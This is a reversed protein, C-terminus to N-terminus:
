LKIAAITKDILEALETVKPYERLMVLQTNTNWEWVLNDGATRYKIKAPEVQNPNAAKWFALAVKVEEKKKEQDLALRSIIIRSTDFVPVFGVRDYVRVLNYNVLDEDQHYTGEPSAPTIAVMPRPLFKGTAAEKGLDRWYQTRETYPASALILSIHTAPKFQNPRPHTGQRPYAREGEPGGSLYNRSMGISWLLLLRGLGSKGKHKQACLALVEICQSRPGHLQVQGVQGIPTVKALKEELIKAESGPASRSMICYGIVQAANDNTVLAWGELWKRGRQYPVTENTVFTKQDAVNNEYSDGVANYFIPLGRKGHKTKDFVIGPGSPSVWNGYNGSDTGGILQDWRKQSILEAEAGNLACAKSLDDFKIGGSLRVIRLQLRDLTNPIVKLVDLYEKPPPALVLKAYPDLIHTKSEPPQELNPLPASDDRWADANINLNPYMDADPGGAGVPASAPAAAPAARPKYKNLLTNLQSVSFVQKVREPPLSKAQGVANQRAWQHAEVAFPLEELLVVLYAFQGAQVDTWKQMAEPRMQDKVRNLVELSNEVRAGSKEDMLNQNDPSLVVTSALERRLGQRLQQYFISSTPMYRDILTNIQAPTYEPIKISDLSSGAALANKVVRHAALARNVEEEKINAPIDRNVSLPKNSIINLFATDQATLVANDVLAQRLDRRIADTNTNPPPPRQPQGAAGAPAGAAPPQRAAPMMAYKLALIDIGAGYARAVDPIEQEVAATVEQPLMSQGSHGRTRAWKHMKVALDFEQQRLTRFAEYVQPNTERKSLLDAVSPMDSLLWDSVNKITLRQQTKSVVFQDDANIIVSDYMFKRLSKRIREEDPVTVRKGERAAPAAPAPARQEKYFGLRAVAVPVGYVAAVQPLEEEYARGFIKVDDTPKGDQLWKVAFDNLEQMYLLEQAEIRKYAAWLHDDEEGRSAKIAAFAPYKRALRKRFLSKTFETGTKRDLLRDRKDYVNNLAFDERLATRIQEEGALTTPSFDGRPPRPEPPADEDPDYDEDDDPGEWDVGMNGYLFEQPDLAVATNRRYKPKVRDRSYDGTQWEERTIRGTIFLGLKIDRIDVMKKNARRALQLAVTLVQMLEAEHCAQVFRLLGIQKRPMGFARLSPDLKAEEIVHRQFMREFYQAPLLLRFNKNEYFETNSVLGAKKDAALKAKAAARRRARDQEVAVRAASASM